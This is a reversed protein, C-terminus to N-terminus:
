EALFRQLIAAVQARTASGKPALQTDSMGNILGEANAWQVADTAWGSVTDADTYGSLDARATVDQGKYEAYNMLIAAMQERTIADNPGFATDSYGNVIGEEAAWNVADEYYAGSAVDAFGADTSVAPEGEQRYLISVIMGRTTTLSPSFKDAATGTMLGANYAYEVADYYWADPDVDVFPLSPTPAPEDGSKVFTAAVSVKSAPMTFAYESDSVKTLEVADGNKDTVTLSDLVYGEDPTVTLTVTKGKMASTRDASVSGNDAADISVSYSPVAIIGGGTNEKVTITSSAQLGDVTATVIYTGAKSASFSISNGSVTYSTNAKDSVSWNVVTGEDFGTLGADISIANGTYIEASEPEVTLKKAVVPAEGQTANPQYVETVGNETIVVTPEAAVYADWSEFYRENQEFNVMDAMNMGEPVTNNILEFTGDMRNTVLKDYGEPLNTFTNGEVTVDAMETVAPSAWSVNGIIYSDDSAPRDFTNGKILISDAQDVSDFAVTGKEIINNEILVNGKDGNIYLSGAETVGNETNPTLKNNTFTFNEANTFVEIVKNTGGEGYYKNLNPMIELGSITVNDADVTIFNQSAWTGSNADDDSYITAQTKSPDTIENGQGDVGVLSVSKNIYLYMKQKEDNNYKATGFPVDYEGPYIYITSNKDAENIAQQILSGDYPEDAEVYKSYVKEYGNVTAKIVGTTDMTEGSESLGQNGTFSEVKSVLYGTSTDDISYGYSTNTYTCNDIKLTVGGDEPKETVPNVYVASGLNEFTCGDFTVSSGHADYGFLVAWGAPTEKAAEETNKFGLNKITLKTNEYLANTDNGFVAHTKNGASRDFSITHGKGDINLTKGSIKTGDIGNSDLTVNNILTITDGNEADSFAATLTKYGQSGIKAVADDAVTVQGTKSDYKNGEPVYNSLGNNNSADKFTGGLVKINPSDGGISAKGGSVTGGNITVTATDDVDIANVTKKTTSLEGGNINVASEDAVQLVYSGGGTSSLKGGNVNLVTNEQVQICTKGKAEIEATGDINVTAGKYLQIAGSQGGDFTLKGGTMNFIIGDPEGSSSVYVGTRGSSQMEGGTIDVTTGEGRIGLVSDATSILKGGSISISANKASDYIDVTEQTTKITGGLLSFSSGDGTLQIGYGKDKSTSEIMGAQGKSSDTVTLSGGDVKMIFYNNQGVNNTLEKGNLDLAVDNTITWNQATGVTINSTLKINGGNALATGLAEVSSVETWAADTAVDTQTPTDEAWAVAPAMTFLMSAALVVSLFRKSKKHLM